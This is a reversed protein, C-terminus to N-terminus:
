RDTEGKGRQASVRTRACTQRIWSVLQDQFGPAYYALSNIERDYGTRALLLGHNANKFVRVTANRVGAYALASRIRVASEATPVSRDLEGLMVFVPARVAKWHRIPDFEWESRLKNLFALGGSDAPDIRPVWLVRSWPFWRESSV